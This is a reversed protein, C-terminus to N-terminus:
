MKSGNAAGSKCSTERHNNNEHASNLVADLAVQKLFLLLLLISRELDGVERKLAHRGYARPVSM